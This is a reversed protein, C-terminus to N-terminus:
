QVELDYEKLYEDWYKKYGIRSKIGRDKPIVSQWKESWRKSEEIDFGKYNDNVFMWKHHYIQGKAKTIKIKQTDLDVTYSDGVEPERAIDFDKSEIFTVKKNKADVKYITAIEYGERCIEIANRLMEKQETTLQAYASYHVYSATGIKKM